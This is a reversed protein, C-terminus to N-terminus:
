AQTCSEIRKMKIRQSRAYLSYFNLQFYQTHNSFTTVSHFELWFAFVIAYLVFLQAVMWHFGFSSRVDPPQSVHAWIESKYNRQKSLCLTICERPIVVTHGYITATTKEGTHRRQPWGTDIGDLAIADDLKYLLKKKIGNQFLSYYLKTWYYVALSNQIISDIGQTSKVKTIFKQMSCQIRRHFLCLM